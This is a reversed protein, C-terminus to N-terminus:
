VFDKFKLGSELLKFGIENVIEDKSIQKNSNIFDSVKKPDDGAKKISAVAKLITNSDYKKDIKEYRAKQFYAGFQQWTLNTGNKRNFTDARKKYVATIGRKTSSPSELFRKVANIRAHLNTKDIEGTKTKRGVLNFRTATPDGTLALIDYQAQAYAFNLVNKYNPDSAYRELRVMRQDAIKALSRFYAEESEGERIARSKMGYEEATEKRRKTIKNM